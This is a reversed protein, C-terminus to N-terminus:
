HVRADASGGIITLVRNDTEHVPLALADACVAIGQTSSGALRRVIMM